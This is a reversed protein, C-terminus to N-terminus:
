KWWAPNRPDFGVEFHWLGIVGAIMGLLIVVLIFHGLRQSM